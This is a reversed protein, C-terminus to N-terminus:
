APKGPERAPEDRTGASVSSRDGDVWQVFRAMLVVSVVTLVGSNVLHPLVVAQGDRIM